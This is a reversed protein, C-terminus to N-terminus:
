LTLHKISLEVICDQMYANTRSIDGDEVYADIWVKRQTDYIQVERGSLISACLDFLERDVLGSHLTHTTTATITLHREPSLNESLTEFSDEESVNDVQATQQWLFHRMLGTADKWRVFTGSDCSNVVVTISGTKMTSNNQVELERVSNGFDRFFTMPISFLPDVRTYDARRGTEKDIFSVNQGNISGSYTNILIQENYDFAPFVIIKSPQPWSIPSDAQANNMMERESAGKLLYLPSSVITQGDVELSITTQANGDQTIIEFLDDMPFVASGNIISRMLTYSGVKIVAANYTPAERVGAINYNRALSIVPPLKYKPM